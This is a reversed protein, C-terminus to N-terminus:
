CRSSTTWPASAAPLVVVSWADGAAARGSALVGPGPPEEGLSLRIPENARQELTDGDDLRVFSYGREKLLPVVYKVMDVTNGTGSALSHNTPDGYDADHM